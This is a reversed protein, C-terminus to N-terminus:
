RYIIISMLFHHTKTYGCLQMPIVTHITKRAFNGDYRTSTRAYAPGQCDTKRLLSAM